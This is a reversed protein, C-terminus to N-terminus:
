DMSNQKLEEILQETVWSEELAIFDVSKEMPGINLAYVIGVRPNPVLKKLQTM